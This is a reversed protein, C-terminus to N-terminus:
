EGVEDLEIEVNASDFDGEAYRNEFAKWAETENEALVSLTVTVVYNNLEKEM